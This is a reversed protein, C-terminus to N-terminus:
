GAAPSDPRSRRAFRPLVLSTVLVLGALGAAVGEVAPGLRVAPTIGSREPVVFTQAAATGETTIDRTSGDPLVLGSLANTTSVVIERRLEMARARTIAFQQVPQGTGTYTGNNSQVVLVQAGHTVTDHVTADWALEFCIVDGLRLQRGRSLTVDLVGPTTGPISQAGVEKLIPLVPLLLNRLPIWEGFPVLNRKDYRAVPVIGMQVAGTPWWLASTQREDDGPGETVAGVLVPVGALDTASQILHHTRLDLTPDVDTSNEPWLVFDPVPDNGTRARAMLMVTEALHNNTVSRAYGLAHPGATGDVDGQVMGVAVEPGAPGPQVARSVLPAGVCVVVLLALAGALSGRGVVARRVVPRPCAGVLWPLVVMGLLMSSLAVLLSVGGVGIGPLWGALWSDVQTYALRLWGFGGFPVRSAGYEALSWGCAGALALLLRNDTLRRAAGVVVATLGQWLAMFCVLPPVVYWGIAKVWGIAVLNLGLGFAWGWVLHRRLGAARAPRAPPAATAGGNNRPVQHAERTVPRGAWLLLWAFGALGVFVLPWADLPEFACGTVAGCLAFAAALGWTRRPLARRAASGRRRRRGLPRAGAAEPRSAM